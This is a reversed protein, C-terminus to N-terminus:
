SRKPLNTRASDYVRSYRTTQSRGIMGGIAGILIGLLLMLLFSGLGTAAVAGVLFQDATAPIPQNLRKSMDEIMLNWMNHLTSSNGAALLSAAALSILSSIIATWMGAFAGTGVRGTSRVARAGASFYIVLALVLGALSLPLTLAPQRLYNLLLVLAVQIISLIIGFLLGYALAPSGKSKVLTGEVM